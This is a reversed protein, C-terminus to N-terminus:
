VIFHSKVQIAQTCESCLPVDIGRHLPLAGGYPYRRGWGREQSLESM